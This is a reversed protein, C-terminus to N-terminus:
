APKAAPAPEARYIRWADYAISGVCVVIVGILSVEVAINVGKDLKALATAPVGTGTVV